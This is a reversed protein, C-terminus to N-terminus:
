RNKRLVSMKSSPFFPESVSGRPQSSHSCALWGGFHAAAVALISGKVSYKPLTVAVDYRCSQESPM